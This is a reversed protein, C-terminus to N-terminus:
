VFVTSEVLSSLHSMRLMARRVRTGLCALSPFSRLWLIWIGM